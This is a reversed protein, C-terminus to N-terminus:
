SGVNPIHETFTFNCGSRKDYDNFTIEYKDIYNKLM